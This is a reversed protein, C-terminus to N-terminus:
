RTTCSGRELTQRRLRFTFYILVITAGLLAGRMGDVLDEGLASALRPMGLVGFLALFMMAVRFTTRPQKMKMLM